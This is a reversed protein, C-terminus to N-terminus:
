LEEKWKMSRHGLGIKRFAGRSRNGVAAARSGNRGHIKTLRQCAVSIWCASTREATAFAASAHQTSAGSRTSIESRSPACRGSFSAALRAAPRHSRSRAICLGAEGTARGRHVDDLTHSGYPARSGDSAVFRRHRSSRSHQGPPRESNPAHASGPCSAHPLCLLDESLAGNSAQSRKRDHSM